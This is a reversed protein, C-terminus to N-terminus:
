RVPVQVEAVPPESIRSARIYETPTQGYHQRFARSLHGSDAFQWRAAIETITLRGAPNTLDRRAEELRRTRIYAAVSEDDAAFARQLTRVSVNLAHALTTASLRPDTLRRDALSKATRVLAPALQTETHDVAGRVVAKALEVLADRAAQAGVPSLEAGHRWIMDAHANLLLM